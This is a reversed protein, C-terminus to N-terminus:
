NIDMFYIAFKEAIEKAIFSIMESEIYPNDEVPFKDDMKILADKTLKSILKNYRRLFILSMLNKSQVILRNPIDKYENSNQDLYKLVKERSLKLSYDIERTERKEVDFFYSEKLEPGNYCDNLLVTVRYFNFLEVYGYLINESVDGVILISHLIDDKNKHIIEDSLYMFSIKPLIDCNNDLYDEIFDSVEKREQELYFYYNLVIKAIGKFADKGGYVEDITVEKKFPEEVVKFTDIIDEVEDNTFKYNKKFSKLVEKAQKIDRAKIKIETKNDNKITKIEPKIRQPKGGTLFRFKENTEKHSAEFSRPKGRDREIDLMNAIFNLQKALIADEQSGITSNCDKCLLEDSKLRGGLSNPIIHELSSNSSNLNQQCMYCISM